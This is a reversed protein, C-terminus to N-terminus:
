RLLKDLIDDVPRFGCVLNTQYFKEMINWSFNHLCDLIIYSFSDDKDLVVGWFFVFCDTNTQTAKNKISVSFTSKAQDEHSVAYVVAGSNILM